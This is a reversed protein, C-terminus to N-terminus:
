WGDAKRSKNGGEEKFEGSDKGGDKRRDDEGCKARMRLIINVYIRRQIMGDVYQEM